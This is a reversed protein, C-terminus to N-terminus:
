DELAKLVKPPNFLRNKGIKLSPIRKEKVWKNITRESVSLM